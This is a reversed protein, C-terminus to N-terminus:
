RIKSCVKRTRSEFESSAYVIGSVGNIVMKSREQVMKSWKPGKKSWKPGNRVMKSMKSGNQVRKPGNQLGGTLKVM